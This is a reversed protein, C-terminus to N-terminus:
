FAVHDDGNMVAFHDHPQGIVSLRHFPSLHFRPRILERGRKRLLLEPKPVPPFCVHPSGDMETAISRFPCQDPWCRTRLSYSERHRAADFFSERRRRKPRNDGVHGRAYEYERTLRHGFRAPLLSESCTPRACGDCEYESLSAARTDSKTRALM